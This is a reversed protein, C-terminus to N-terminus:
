YALRVGLTAIFPLGSLVTRQRYDFSYLYGEANNANYVNLADIYISGDFDGITFKYDIRLDLQHFTPLRDAFPTSRPSYGDGDVDYVGGRVLNVLSTPTGTNLQFRAGFRWPGIEYSLAINLIHTQDYSFPVVTGAGVFRESRSLTYSIWGYFGDALKRRLLVELGYARGEGDDIYFRRHVTGDPDALIQNTGHPLHSMQSYFATSELEIQWPLKLEVGASSQFSESPELRPDGLNPIIYFPQPAQSFLGTAAKIVVEPTVHVRGVVRPSFRVDSVEGYRFHDLRLGGDIEVPGFTLKQDIYPALDLIPLNSGIVFTGMNDVPPPFSGLGPPLPLQANLYALLAHFDLGLTTRYNADPNWTAEFREGLSTAGVNVSLDPTGPSRSLTGNADTGIMGAVSLRLHQEPIRLELKGILRLFDFNLGTTTQMATVGSGAAQVSSLDDHSGFFFLSARLQPTIRLDARLQYDTYSVSIGKTFLPLLLEYYSRRISFAVSGRHDPLPVVGFASAKLLDIEVEFAPRRVEPVATHVSIVGGTFRGYELPYGGPYFSIEDILRSSLVSPGAGLHYLLPVSFGDIFFGTNEFAAGRVVYFGLGFPSRAVGPLAGVVRLPEGFTGPVTTLEAGTLTFRTAAGPEPATAHAHASFVSERVAVAPAADPAPGGDREQVGADIPGADPPGGDMEHVSPPLGADLTPPPESVAVAFRFRVRARVPAGDRTAPTFHLGRALALAAGDVDDRLPADVSVDEVRGTADITLLLAVSSGPPLAATGTPLDLAPAPGALAPPVLVPGAADPVGGDQAHATAHACALVVALAARFRM